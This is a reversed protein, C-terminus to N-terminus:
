FLGETDEGSDIIRPLHHTNSESQGGEQNQSDLLEGSLLAEIDTLEDATSHTPKDPDLEKIVFYELVADPDLEDSPEATSRDIYVEKIYDPLPERDEEIGELGTHMYDVWIPLAAIGGAEGKGMTAPDDFGVWVTTAVKSNFGSFWADIYDNTTGTKGALDTRNLTLAKRGTGTKIVEKLMNVTLFNNARSMVRPAIYTSPEATEAINEEATTATSDDAVQLDQEIDDTKNSPLYQTLYEFYCEDCYEPQKAQYIVKGDKDTIYDIFYPEVKYGSNALTSYATIIELPTAGGAGLAMTLTPSFRNIDIGFRETYERAFPIGIARLLRISVLNISKALANRMRTPGFFKGSYNEPRWVTGNLENKIVIPAGSILSAPTFGRELSASYIFPKINSGPQRISQVARNYKSLFFDYGGVLSIIRGDVPDMSILAGSVDPIQSLQWNITTDYASHESNSDIDKSAEDPKDFPEIYVIDGPELLENMATVTKGRLDPTKYKKAWKSSELTLPVMGHEITYAHSIDETSDLVLAPIQEQSSPIDSLIDAYALNKTDEDDISEPATSPATENLISDLDIKKIPGRFGHRRDYNKLGNRLAQQAAHQQKSHITTYVNLGQWYANKDLGEILHARVMEAIHPASVEIGRGHRKATSPQEVATQYDSTNIKKLELLRNLVYNRRQLARKPNRLPNSTSPAKPLGALVATEALSLDALPKGYYVDAAAGFGYARHGLFIKNIYLGLIEDKTLIQELKIALLIERIKRIYTQEPSLFFNRAVQMTITSAGQPSGNNRFNSLAARILGLFDIGHHSYFRDDESALIADILLQPADEVAIPKRREDGFESILLKDASYVRLPIKLEISKISQADPLTASIQTISYAAIVLGVM